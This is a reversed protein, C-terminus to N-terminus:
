GLPGPCYDALLRDVDESRWPEYGLNLMGSIVDLMFQAHGDDLDVQDALHGHKYTITVIAEAPGPSIGQRRAWRSMLITAAVARAPAAM